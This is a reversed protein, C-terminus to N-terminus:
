NRSAGGSTSTLAYVLGVVILVLVAIYLLPTMWWGRMGTDWLMKFGQVVSAMIAILLLPWYSYGGWRVVKTVAKDLKGGARWATMTLALVLLLFVAGILLVTGLGTFFATPFSIGGIWYALWVFGVMVCLLVWRLRSSHVKKRGWFLWLLLAFVSLIVFHWWTGREAPVDVESRMAALWLCLLGVIFVTILQDALQRIILRSRNASQKSM